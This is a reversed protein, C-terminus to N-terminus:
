VNRICISVGPIATKDLTFNHAPPLGVYSCLVIMGEIDRYSLKFYAMKLNNDTYFHVYMVDSQTEGSHGM